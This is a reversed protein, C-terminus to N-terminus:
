KLNLFNHEYALTQTPRDEKELEEVLKNSIKCKRAKSKKKRIRPTMNQYDQKFGHGTLECM